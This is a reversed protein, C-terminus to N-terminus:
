KTHLTHMSLLVKFRRRLHVADGSDLGAAGLAGEVHVHFGAVQVLTMGAVAQGRGGARRDAVAQALHKRQLAVEVGFAEFAPAQLM